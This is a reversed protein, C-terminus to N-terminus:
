FSAVLDRTLSFLYCSSLSSIGAFSDSANPLNLPDPCVKPYGQNHLFFPRFTFERSSCFRRYSSSSSSSIGHTVFFNTPFQLPHLIVWSNNRVTIRPSSLRSQWPSSTRAFSDLSARCSLELTKKLHQDQKFSRRPIPAAPHRPSM